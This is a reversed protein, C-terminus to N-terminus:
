ERLPGFRDEWMAVVPELDKTFRECYARVEDNRVREASSTLKTMIRLVSETAAHAIDRGFAVFRWEVGVGLDPHLEAEHADSGPHVAQDRRDALRHLFRRVVQASEDPLRFGRRLVEAIQAYRPTGNARWAALAADDIKVHSKVSAYFADMATAAAVVAQMGSEYTAMLHRGKAKEDGDRHAQLVRIHAADADVVHGIAIRLWVATQDLRLHVIPQSAKLNGEEDISFSLNKLILDMGKVVYIGGSRPKDENGNPEKEDAMGGLIPSAESRPWGTDMAYNTARLERIPTFNTTTM